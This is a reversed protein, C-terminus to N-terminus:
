TTLRRLDDPPRTAEAAVDVTAGVVWATGESVIVPNLEVRQVDEVEDALRSVRQLLEMIAATGPGDLLSAV